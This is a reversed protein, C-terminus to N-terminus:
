LALQLAELMSAPGRMDHGEVVAESGAAGPLEFPYVQPLGCRQKSLPMERAYPIQRM